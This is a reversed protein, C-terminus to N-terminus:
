DIKKIESAGSLNQYEIFGNGKYKLRSAGSLRADIKGNVTMKASSAGSLNIDLDEVVFTYDEFQSSGSNRLNFFDASGSLTAHSAGSAKLTLQDVDMTGYFDSAGSLKVNVVEAELNDELQIASSGSAVYDTITKTTIYVNLTPDGKLITFSKLGVKLDNGIKEVEIHDFLNDDAEIEVKEESDSFRVFAQFADSIDIRTIDSFDQDETIVNGSGRLSNDRCSSFLLTCIILSLTLNFTKM